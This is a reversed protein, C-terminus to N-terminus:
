AAAPGILLTEIGLTNALVALRKDATALPQSRELALALYLCDYLPHSHTLSIDIATDLLQRDAVFETIANRNEAMALRLQSASILEGRVYKALSNAIEAEIFAPAILDSRELIRVAAASLPTPVAWYVAINADVIM